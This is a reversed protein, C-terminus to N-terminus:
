AGTRTRLSERERLEPMKNCEEAKQLDAAEETPEIQKETDYAQFQM